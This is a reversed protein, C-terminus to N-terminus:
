LECIRVSKRKLMEAKIVYGNMLDGPHELQFGFCIMVPRLRIDGHENYFVQYEDSCVFMETALFVYTGCKTMHVYTM